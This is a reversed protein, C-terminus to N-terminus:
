ESLKTTASSRAYMETNRQIVCIEQRYQASYRMDGTKVTMVAINETAHRIM